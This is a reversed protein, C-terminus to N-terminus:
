RLVVPGTSNNSGLNPRFIMMSFCPEAEVTTQFGQTLLDCCIGSKPLSSYVLITQMSDPFTAEFSILSGGLSVDVNSNFILLWARPQFRKSAPRGQTPKRGRWSKTIPLCARAYSKPTLRRSQYAAM